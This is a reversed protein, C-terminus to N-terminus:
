RGGRTSRRPRGRAIAFPRELRDCPRRTWVDVGVDRTQTQAAPARCAPISGLAIHSGRNRPDWMRHMCWRAARTIARSAAPTTSATPAEPLTPARAARARPARPRPTPVVPRTTQARSAAPNCTRAPNTAPSSMPVAPDTPRPAPAQSTTPPTARTARDLTRATFPTAHTIGPRRRPRKAPPVWRWRSLSRWSRILTRRRRFLTIDM